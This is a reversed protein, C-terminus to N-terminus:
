ELTLPIERLLQLTLGRGSSRLWCHCSAFPVDGLEYHPLLAKLWLCKFFMFLGATMVVCKASAKIATDCEKFRLLLSCTYREVTVSGNELQALAKSATLRYADM